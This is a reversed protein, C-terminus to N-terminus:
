GKANRLAEAEDESFTNEIARELARGIAARAEAANGRRYDNPFSLLVRSPTVTTSAPLALYSWDGTNRDLSIHGDVKAYAAVTAVLDGIRLIGRRMFLPLALRELQANTPSKAM